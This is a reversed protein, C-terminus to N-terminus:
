YGYRVYFRFQDHIFSNYYVDTYHGSISLVNRLGEAIKIIRYQRYTSFQIKRFAVKRWEGVAGHVM